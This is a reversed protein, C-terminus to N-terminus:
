NKPPDPSWAHEPDRSYEIGEIGSASYYGGMPVKISLGMLVPKNLLKALIIRSTIGTKVAQASSIDVAVFDM